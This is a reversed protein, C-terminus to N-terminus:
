SSIIMSSLKKSHEESIYFDLFIDLSDEESVLELQLEVFNDEFSIKDQHRFPLFILLIVATMIVFVLKPKLFSFRLGELFDLFWYKVTTFFGTEQSGLFKVKAVIEGLEQNSISPSKEKIKSLVELEKFQRQCINCSLLHKSFNEIKKSELDKYYFLVWEKKKPCKM